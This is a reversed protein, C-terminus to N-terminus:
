PPVDKLRGELWERAADMDVNSYAVGSKDLHTRAVQVASSADAAPVLLPLGPILWLLATMTGRLLPNSIIGVAVCTRREEIPVRNSLEAILKREAASPVKRALVILAHWRKERLSKMNAEHLQAFMARFEEESGGSLELLVVPFYRSVVRISV